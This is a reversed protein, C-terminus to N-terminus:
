SQELERLRERRRALRKEHKTSERSAQLQEIIVPGYRADPYNHDFIFAMNVPLRAVTAESEGLEEERDVVEQFVSQDSDEGRQRLVQSADSITEKSQDAWAKLMRRADPSDAIFVTASNLFGNNYVVGLDADYLNLYEWPDSHVVADVDIYLLPGSLRERAELMWQPKLHTTRVWDREPEVETIDFDLGVKELTAQLRAAETRYIEDPTHFAIVTGRHVQPNKESADLIDAAAPYGMEVARSDLLAELAVQRAVRERTEKRGPWTPIEPMALASDAVSRLARAELCSASGIADAIERFVSASNDVCSDRTVTVVTVDSQSRWSDLGAMRALVGPATFSMKRHRGFRFRYDFGDAYQHPLRPDTACVSDRPDATTAILVIRRYLGVDTVIEESRTLDDPHWSTVVERFDSAFARADTPDEDLRVAPAVRRIEDVLYHLSPLDTGSLIVHIAPRGRFFANLRHRVVRGFDALRARWARLRKM